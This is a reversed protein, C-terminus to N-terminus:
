EPLGATKRMLDLDLQAAPVKLARYTSDGVGLTLELLRNGAADVETFAPNVGASLGWGIIRSGDDEVRFSGLALSPGQGARQWVVSATGAAVDYSLILGRAPGPKSTQDDFLSITGDPLFRADHQRYFGSLTDGQVAIYSAGDKTYTAGGMKWVIKGTARSILFISDMHRASVLLDGNAAVDVANCHFPDPVSVFTGADTLADDNSVFTCDKVPDLHDTAAWMWVINNNADVEQLVCNLMNDSATAHGLGTLDVGTEIPRAIVLYHGNPLPRLEHIDLPSGTPMVKKAGNTALDHIEYSGAFDSFTYDFDGVYSISNQTLVDVNDAGNGDLTAHYWVPVGQGDLAIAYGGEDVSHYTDGLLYYGPSPTGADPYAQMTWTPFDHPLCRIWYETRAAGRTAAVVIAQNEAVALTVQEHGSSVATSPATIAVGDGPRPSMSLGLTNTGAVCRVFYDHVAPSFAPTLVAPEVTLATLAPPGADSPALADLSADDAPHARAADRPPRADHHGADVPSTSSNSSCATALLLSLVVAVARPSPNGATPHLLVAPPMALPVSARNLAPMSNM